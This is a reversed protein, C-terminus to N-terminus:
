HIKPIGYRWLLVLKRPSITFTHLFGTHSIRRFSQVQHRKLRLGNRRTWLAVWVHAYVERWLRPDRRVVSLMLGEITLLLLHLPLLLWLLVSPTCIYLAFTKNRESLRRRRYTSVLGAVGARNGGFSGGQRHRYHSDKAVQVPYGALRARCCLYLDEAISEFWKPFGGLELWLTRPLWLCAGIVMAVDRRESKLNPVPNYFPDLLCGRDVLAGSEWDYQPLTLIGQPKQRAAEHLLTSLADPALAADNNLLLIFEGRAQAVMRNNAICFGVNRESTIVTVQPYRERLLQLSTDTSADDHVLIEVSANIDQALVSDLCEILVNEGEYNAICVSIRPPVNPNM